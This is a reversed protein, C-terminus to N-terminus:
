DFGDGVGKEGSAKGCPGRCSLGEGAFEEVDEVEERFM